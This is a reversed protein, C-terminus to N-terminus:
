VAQTSATKWADLPLPDVGYSYLAAPGKVSTLEEVLLPPFASMKSDVSQARDARRGSASRPEAKHYAVTTRLIRTISSTPWRGV